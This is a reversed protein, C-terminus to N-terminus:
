GLDRQQEKGAKGVLRLPSAGIHSFAELDGFWSSAHRDPRVDMQPQSFPRSRIPLRCRKGVEAMGPSAHDRAVPAPGRCHAALPSGAGLFGHGGLQM